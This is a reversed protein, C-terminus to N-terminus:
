SEREGLDLWMVNTCRTVRALTYYRCIQSTSHVFRRHVSQPPSDAPRRRAVELTWTSERRAGHGPAHLGRRTAAKGNAGQLDRQGATAVSSPRCQVVFARHPSLPSRAASLLRM